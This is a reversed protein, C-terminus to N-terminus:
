ESGGGGAGSNTCLLQALAHAEREVDFEGRRGRMVAGHIAASSETAFRGVPVENRPWADVIARVTDAPNPVPWPDGDNLRAAQWEEPTLDGKELNCRTCAPALNERDDSGGRSFPIVHDVELISLTSGCYACAGGAVVDRRVAPTIGRRRERQAQELPTM